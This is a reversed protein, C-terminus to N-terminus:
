EPGGNNEAPTRKEEPRVSVIRADASGEAFRLTVPDEPRLESASRVTNGRGTFVAAYGRTLVTLPNLTELKATLAAFGSKKGLMSRDLAARLATEKWLLGKREERFRSRCSQVMRETRESLQRKRESLFADPSSLIRSKSLHELQRRWASLTGRISGKLRAELSDVTQLLEERDPVALEAAASPTAARLDAVFDCITFDTEHGVASIVPIRSFAVTRALGEDNFAWLDEASGGGRGILIVDASRTANFYRVGEALQAPAGDGQVQAPYILIKAAPYRRTLIRVMDQVAAGTPSTVIGVTRPYEPIEKKRAPDFLGEAELKRKLQEFALALAGAGDPEMADAYFQYQGSQPYVSIRGHLIVRMGNQPLFKMRVASSRFMVARILGSEDKVSFYLHGSVGPSSLNSIEGRMWLSSLIPDGDLVTKVYRNVEEVTFVFRENKPM